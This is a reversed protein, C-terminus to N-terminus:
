GELLHVSLGPLGLRDAPGDGTWLSRTMRDMHWWRRETGVQIQMFLGM